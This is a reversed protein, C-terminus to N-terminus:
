LRVVDGQVVEQIEAWKWILTGMIGVVSAGLLSVFALSRSGGDEGKYSDASTDEISDEIPEADPEDRFTVRKRVETASNPATADYKNSHTKHPSKQKNQIQTTAAKEATGTTSSSSTVSAKKVTTPKSCESFRGAPEDLNVRQLSAMLDQTSIMFEDKISM